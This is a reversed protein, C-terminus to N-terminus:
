GRHKTEPFRSSDITPATNLVWRELLPSLREVFAEETFTEPELRSHIILGDILAMISVAIVDPEGVLQQGRHEDSLVIMETILNRWEAHIEALLIGIKENGPRLGAMMVQLLFLQQSPDSFRIIASFSRKIWEALSVHGKELQRFREINAQTRQRIIELVFEEKSAFHYYVAGKTVNVAAAIDGISAGDYGKEGILRVGADILAQRTQLDTGQDVGKTKM